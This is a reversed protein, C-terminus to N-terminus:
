QFHKEYASEFCSLCNLLIINHTAAVSFCCDAFAFVLAKTKVVSTTVIGRRLDQCKLSTRAQTQSQCAPKHGVQDSILITPKMHFLCTNHSLKSLSTKYNLAHLKHLTLKTITLMYYKHLTKIVIVVKCCNGDKAILMPIM